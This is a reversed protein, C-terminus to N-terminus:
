ARAQRLRQRLRTLGAGAAPTSSTTTRLRCWARETRSLWVLGDVAPFDGAEGGIKMGCAAPLIKMVGDKTKTEKFEWATTANVGVLRFESPL